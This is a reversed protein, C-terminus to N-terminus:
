KVLPIIFAHLMLYYQKKPNSTIFMSNQNGSLSTFFPPLPNKFSSKLLFVDVFDSVGRSGTGIFAHMKINFYSPYEFSRIYSDNVVLFKRLNTDACLMYRKNAIIKDYDYTKDKPKNNIIERIVIKPENGLGFFFFYTTNYIFGTYFNCNGRIWEFEFRRRGKILENSSIFSTSNVSYEKGILDEHISFGM